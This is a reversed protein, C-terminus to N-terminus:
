KPRRSSSALWLATGVAVLVALAIWPWRARM